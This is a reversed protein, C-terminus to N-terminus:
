GTSLHWPVPEREDWRALRVLRPSADPRMIVDGDVDGAGNEVPEVLFDAREAFEPPAGARCHQKPACGPQTGQLQRLGVAITRCSGYVDHATM